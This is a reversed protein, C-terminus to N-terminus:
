EVDLHLIMGGGDHRRMVFTYHGAANPTFRQVSSQGTPSSIAPPTTPTEAFFGFFLKSALAADLPASSGAVTATVTVQTGVSGVQRQHGRRSTPNIRSPLDSAPDEWLELSAGSTIRATFNAM